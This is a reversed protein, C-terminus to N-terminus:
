CRVIPYRKWVEQIEGLKPENRDNGVKELNPFLHSLLRLLTQSLLFPKAGLRAWSYRFNTTLRNSFDRVLVKVTDTIHYIGFKHQLEHVRSQFYARPRSMGGWIQINRPVVTVHEDWLLKDIHNVEKFTQVSFDMLKEQGIVLLVKSQPQKQVIIRENIGEYESHRALFPEVGTCWKTFAIVWVAMQASVKFIAYTAEGIRELERLARIIKSLCQEPPYGRQIFLLPKPEAVRSQENIDPRALSETEPLLNTAENPLTPEM